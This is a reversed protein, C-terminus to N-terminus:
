FYRNQGPDRQKADNLFLKEFEEPNDECVAVRLEEM